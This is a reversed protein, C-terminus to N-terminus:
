AKPYLIFGECDCSHDILSADEPKYAATCLPAPDGLATLDDLSPFFAHALMDHGCTECLRDDADALDVRGDEDSTHPFERLREAGDETLAVVVWDNGLHFAHDDIWDNAHQACLLAPAFQGAPRPEVACDVPNPCPTYDTDAFYQCTAPMDPGFLNAYDRPTPDPTTM